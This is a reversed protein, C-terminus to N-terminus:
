VEAESTHSHTSRTVLRPLYAPFATSPHSASFLAEHTIMTRLAIKLFRVFYRCRRNYSEEDKM